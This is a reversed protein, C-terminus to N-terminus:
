IIDQHKYFFKKIGAIAADFIEYKVLKKNFITYYYIGKTNGLISGPTVTDDYIGVLVDYNSILESFNKLTNKKIIVDSDIFLLNQYKSYKVGINRAPGPGFNKRNRIINVKKIKKKKLFKKLNNISEDTSCDDVVIIEFKKYKQYCISKICNIINKNSNYTPIIVSIM